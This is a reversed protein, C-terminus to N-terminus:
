SALRSQRMGRECNTLREGRDGPGTDDDGDARGGEGLDDATTFWEWTGRGMAKDVAASMHFPAVGGPGERAQQMAAAAGAKRAAESLEGKADALERRLRKTEEQSLAENVQSQALEGRQSKNEVGISDLFQRTTDLERSVQRLEELTIM